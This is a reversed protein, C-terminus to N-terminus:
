INKIYRLPVSEPVLIEAQHPVFDPDMRSVYHRKTAELDINKLGNIGAEIRAGNATANRDSFLVGEKDLIAPDIELLFIDYGQKQFRYAM